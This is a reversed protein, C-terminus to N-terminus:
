RGLVELTCYNLALKKMGRQEFQITLKLDNPNGECRKVTGKGFEPHVIKTGPAYMHNSLEDDYSEQRFEDVQAAAKKFAAKKYGSSGPGFKASAAFSNYVVEHQQEHLIYQQPIEGIFRSVPNYQAGKYLHRRSAASMFLRKRARTMAVYCLRREEELEESLSSELSRQHPFVNEEMGVMFVHDFELGKSNHITMMVIPTAGEQYQDTDSMLSIRDMYQALDGQTELYFEEMSRLLEQINEIRSEAEITSEQELAKIYGSQALLAETVEAPPKSTGDKRFESFWLYFDYLARESKKGRPFQAIMDFLCLEKEGAADGLSELTQKGIGRTPTNVVRLFSVNDKPNLVLRLYALVDKIEMRDFFKTGGLVKYLQNRRRCEEELLRSQAHTRYFIAIESAEVQRQALTRTIHDLVFRSEGYDDESHFFTIMEGEPNETWLNKVRRGANNQIVSNAAGLIRKSSRYNQELKIVHAGSFDEPFTMMNEVRAGRWAYISQDEDGVACVIGYQGALKKILMKQIQNTDQYEDILFRQWRNHLTELVHPHNQLLLLTKGLLDGFDMAQNAELTKQYGRTIAVIKEDISPDNEMYKIIDLAENKAQDIHYRIMKPPFAKPDLNLSDIVKKLVSNQDSEDYISFDRVYGLEQHFEKLIRLCTSHFTGIWKPYGYGPLLRHIREKMENAAKNSFTMALISEPVVGLEQILFGIKQTLVRTKGSGAGAVVLLHNECYQVAELQQPNLGSSISM